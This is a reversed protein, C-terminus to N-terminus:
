MEFTSILLYAAQGWLPWSASHSMALKSVDHTAPAGSSIFSNLKIRLCFTESSVTPFGWKRADMM